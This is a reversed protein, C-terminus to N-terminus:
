TLNLAENFDALDTSSLIPLLTVVAATNLFVHAEFEIIRARLTDLEERVAIMLHTKVLDRAFVDNNERDSESSGDYLIPARVSLTAQQLTESTLSRVSRYKFVTDLKPVATLCESIRANTLRRSTGNMSTYVDDLM